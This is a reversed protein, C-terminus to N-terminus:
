NAFEGKAVRVREQRKVACCRRRGRTERALGVFDIRGVNVAEECLGFSMPDREAGELLVALKATFHVSRTQPRPLERVHEGIKGDRDM